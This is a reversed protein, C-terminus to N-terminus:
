LPFGGRIYKCARELNGIDDKLLGIGSNCDKCLHGRFTNKEHCHDLVWKTTQRLCIPCPGPPPDPHRRKLKSVVSRAMMECSQCHLRPAKDKGDKYCMSEAPTDSNCRICRMTSAGSSSLVHETFSLGLQVESM